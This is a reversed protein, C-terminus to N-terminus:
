GTRATAKGTTEKEKPLPRFSFEDAKIQANPPLVLSANYRHHLDEHPMVDFSIRTWEPEVRAWHIVDKTQGAFRANFRVGITVPTESKAWFGFRHKYGQTFRLIPLRTSGGQLSLAKRGLFADPTLADHIRGATWWKHRRLYVCDDWEFGGWDDAGNTDLVPDVTPSLDVQAIQPAVIQPNVRKLPTSTRFGLTDTVSGAIFFPAKTSPLRVWCTGSHATAPLTKWYRTHWNGAEGWSIMVDASAARRPGSYGWAAWLAGDRWTVRLPTPELFGAKGKLHSDLWAFPQESIEGTVAHDWNALLTLSKPGGAM